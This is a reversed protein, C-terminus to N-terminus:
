HRGRTRDIIIDVVRSQDSIPIPHGGRRDHRILIVQGGLERYRQEVVRTHGDFWPDNRDCLHLLTVGAGALPALNDLPSAKTMLSRLAPNWVCICAAKDPNAIAWAYAEGAGTGTGELVPRSSYGHNTM